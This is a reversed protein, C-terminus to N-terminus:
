DFAIVEAPMSSINKFHESIGQTFHIKEDDTVVIFEYDAFDRMIEPAKETGAVFVATSLADCVIGSSGIVTVSVYGNDAPYGDVPDIIHCYRKGDDGIFFREYNGSTIVSRDSTEVVCMDTEPQFPDRVAIKWDSGDPKKGLTQVNGGLNIIASRVDYSRMIDLIEDGTYGKAVAGLDIQVDEPLKISKGEKKVNTYGVKSLLEDIKAKEPIRYEGTTFGWEKLIPYVTIDLCGYTKGCMDLAEGILEATDESMEVAKGDSHDLKWIESTDSTASLESELKFIRKEAEDLAKEANAGYATMNMYTDMAFVDRTGSVVNEQKSITKEAKCGGFPLLVCILAAIKIGKYSM